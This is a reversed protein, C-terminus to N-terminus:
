WRARLVKCCTLPWCPRWSGLLWTLVVPHVSPLAMGPLRGESLWLCTAGRFAMLGSLNWSSGVFCGCGPKWPTRRFNKRGRFLCLALPRAPPTRLAEGAAAAGAGLQARCGM